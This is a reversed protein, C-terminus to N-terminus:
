WCREQAQASETEVQGSPLSVEGHHARFYPKDPLSVGQMHRALQAPLSYAMSEPVGFVVLNNRKSHRLLHELQLENTQREHQLQNYTREGFTM